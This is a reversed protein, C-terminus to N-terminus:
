VEGHWGGEAAAQKVPLIVIFTAGAGPTSEATISGGHREAIKKCIALGIGTGEYESRGHLRQFPAFIRDLHKEDFGIGNDAVAIRCVGASQSQEDGAGFRCQVTVVPTEEARNFKLANGILNQLLQRMQLPDADITPLEAVEVRGGTREIRTELDSLVGQVVQGLDVLAFPQAKSTVRSLVLLDNILTQMRDAAGRMRMLYDRGQENLAEGFKDCLRDGFAQIKRLPEQLDHSAVYAFQELEANSRALIGAKEALAEEARKRETMDQAVCVIGQFEGNPGELLSSSFMVPIKKGDKALYAVELHDVGALHKLDPSTAGVRSTDRDLIMEVPRGLLEQEQYGLLSCTAANSRAITGDASVVILTNIMSKIINDVYEKSVTTKELDGAMKNFSDILLQVEGSARTRVQISLDGGALRTTARALETIPDLILKKSSVFLVAGLAFAAALNLAVVFLITKAIQQQIMYESMGITVTGITDTDILIPISVEIVSETKKIAAIIDPLERDRPLGALIAKLRPWHYDISAFQSTVINGSTDHIVTYVVEEDKNAENVIADLQIGDKIILPDKSLKAIYSALGQGKTILSHKLMDRENIAIITSTVITSIILIGSILGLFRFRIGQRLKLSCM